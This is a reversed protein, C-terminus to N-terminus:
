KGVKSAMSFKISSFQMGPSRNIVIPAPSTTFMPSDRRPCYNDVIDVSKKHIFPTSIKNIWVQMKGRNKQEIWMIWQKWLKKSM